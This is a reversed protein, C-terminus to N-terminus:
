AEGRSLLRGFSDLNSKEINLTRNEKHIEDSEVNKATLQKIVLNREVAMAPLQQIHDLMSQGFAQLTDNHMRTSKGPNNVMQEAALDEELDNTEFNIGNGSEPVDKAVNESALETSELISVKTAKM